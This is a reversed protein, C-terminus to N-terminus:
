RYSFYDSIYKFSVDYRYQINMHGDDFEQHIYKIGNKKLKDCYIRAGAHLFFEDRTGCDVFILKLKKLNSRYKSVLHVPDFKQWRRWVEPIIEGTYLDFPLDFNYEKRKPNPSYCASMGIVNLMPFYIKRKPQKVNIENKIFETVAKHGKGYKQIGVIFDTFDKTYCYEFASDGSHTVMLKFFDPHRMALWMAGYGGSSKGIICRSEPKAITRFTGDIFPVIEKVIYDEYRGTASSNVYQSGGYKTFCDPMVVMMEKIVRNKILRDLRQKINESYGSVNMNMMGFGTFGSILYVVPFRKNTKFYSPPLYVVIDRKFPDKLPNNKLVKSEHLISFIESGM